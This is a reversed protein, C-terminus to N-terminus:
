VNASPSPLEQLHTRIESADLGEVGDLGLQIVLPFFHRNKEFAEDYEFEYEASLLKYRRELEKSQWRPLYMYTGVQEDKVSQKRATAEDTEGTETTKGTEDAEDREDLKSPKSPEDLKSPKSTDNPESKESPDVTESREARDRQEQRRRRLRDARSGENSM